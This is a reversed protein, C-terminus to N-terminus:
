IKLYLYLSFFFKLFVTLLPIGFVPFRIILASRDSFQLTPANIFGTQAHIENQAIIIPRESLRKQHCLTQWEAM